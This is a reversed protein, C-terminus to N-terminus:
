LRGLQAHPTALAQWVREDKVILDQNVKVQNQPDNKITNVLVISTKNKGM